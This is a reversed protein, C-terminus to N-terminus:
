EKRLILLLRAPVPEEMARMYLQGIEAEFERAIHRHHIPRPTRASKAPPEMAQGGEMQTQEM